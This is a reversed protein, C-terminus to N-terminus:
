LSCNSVIFVFPPYVCVPAATYHETSKLPQFYRLCLRTVNLTEQSDDDSCNKRRLETIQYSVSGEGFSGGNLMVLPSVDLCSGNVGCLVWMNFPNVIHTQQFMGQLYKEPGVVDPSFTFKQGKDAWRLVKSQCGTWPWSEGEYTGWCTPNHDLSPSIVSM